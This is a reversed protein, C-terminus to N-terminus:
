REGRRGAVLAVLCAVDLIAKVVFLIIMFMSRSRNM